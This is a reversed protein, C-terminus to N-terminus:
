KYYIKHQVFHRVSDYDHELKKAEKLRWGVDGRRPRTKAGFQL